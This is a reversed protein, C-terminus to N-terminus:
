GLDVERRRPARQPPQRGGRAAPMRAGVSFFASFFASFFISSTIDRGYTQSSTQEEYRRCGRGARGRAALGALTDLGEGTSGAATQGAGGSQRARPANTSDFLAACSTRASRASSSRGLRMSPADQDCIRHKCPRETRRPHALTAGGFVAARVAAGASLDRNGQARERPLRTAWDSSGQESRDVIAPM